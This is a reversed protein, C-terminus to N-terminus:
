PLKRFFTGALLSGCALLVLASWVFPAYWQHYDLYRLETIQTRELRDIQSYIDALAHADTARFYRGQTKQAIAKLTEEDIEVRVPQLVRQGTLPHTVPIHAVGQTGVGIAYVKVGHAQALQAAQQPSIEGANNVGDTLLIVVKSRAQHGRLREVGLALGEGLATGDEANDSVIQIDDLISVVNGHDLTLPCLGDAYRAFAVIGIVDDPRGATDASGWTDDADDGLVFEKFIAKVVELRDVSVDNNVMDRAQMSGSRDVAMVIAIGDRRVRTQDDATRPGALAMAMAVVGAAMFFAPTHAFRARTSRGLGDLITLTSFVVGARQRGALLHYVWPALLAVALFWPDRFEFNHWSM